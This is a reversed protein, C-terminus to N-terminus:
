QGLQWVYDIWPGPAYLFRLDAADVSVPVVFGFRTFLILSVIPLDQCGRNAGQDLTISWGVEPRGKGFLLTGKDATPGCLWVWSSLGCQRWSSASTTLDDHGEVLWDSPGAVRM